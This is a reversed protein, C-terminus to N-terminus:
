INHANRQHSKYGQHFNLDDPPLRASFLYLVRKVQDLVVDVSFLSVTLMQLQEIEQHLLIDESCVSNKAYLAFIYLECFQM